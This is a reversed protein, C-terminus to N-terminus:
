DFQQPTNRAFLTQKVEMDYDTRARIFGFRIGPAPPPNRPNRRESVVASINKSWLVPVFCVPPALTQKGQVLLELDDVPSNLIGDAGAEAARVRGNRELRGTLVLVPNDTISLM